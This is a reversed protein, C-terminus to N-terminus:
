KDTNSVGEALKKELEAKKADAKAQANIKKIEADVRKEEAEALQIEVDALLKDSKSKEIDSTTKQFKSKFQPYKEFYLKKIKGYKAKHKDYTRVWKDFEELAKIKEDETAFVVVNEIQKRMFSLSLGNHNEKNVSKRAEITFGEGRYTNLLKSEISNPNSALKAYGKSITVTKKVHDIVCDRKM